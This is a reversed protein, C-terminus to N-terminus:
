YGIARFLAMLCLCDYCLLVRQQGAIGPNLAVGGGGGGTIWVGAAWTWRGRGLNELRSMPPHCFFLAM